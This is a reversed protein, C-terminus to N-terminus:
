CASPQRGAPFRRTEMWPGYLYDGALQVPRGGADRVACRVEADKALEPEGRPPEGRRDSENARAGVAARPARLLGSEGLGDVTADL